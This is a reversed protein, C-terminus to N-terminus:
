PKRSRMLPISGLGANFSDKLQQIKTVAIKLKEKTEKDAKRMKIKTSLVLYDLMSNISRISKMQFFFCVDMALGISVNYRIKKAVEMIDYDKGYDKGKPIFFCALINPITAYFDENKILTVYDIYQGATFKKVDRVTEYVEGDINITKPCNPRPQPSESLFALDGVKKHYEGLPLDLLEDETCENIISLLTVQTNLDDEANELAEKIQLYKDITLDYYTMDRDQLDLTIFALRHERDTLTM